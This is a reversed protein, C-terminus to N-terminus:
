KRQPGNQPQRKADPMKLNALRSKVASDGSEHDHRQRELAPRIIRARVDIEKQWLEQWLRRTNLLMDGRASEEDFKPRYLDVAEQLQQVFEEETPHGTRQIVLKFAELDKEELRQLKSTLIDWPHPFIFVHGHREARVARDRWNGATRFALHDCVQIYYDSQGKGWGQVEVFRTLFDYAEERPSLDIDESLFGRDILLQLPASGFVVIELSPQPPLRGALQDLRQGANGSWDLNKEGYEM